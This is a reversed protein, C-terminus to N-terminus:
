PMPQIDEAEDLYKSKLRALQEDIEKPTKVKRTPDVVTIDSTIELKPPIIEDWPIQLNDDGAAKGMNRAAVTMAMENDKEIAKQYARKHMEIEQYRILDRRARPMNGIVLKISSLDRIAEIYSLDPNSLQIFSIMQDDTRDPHSYYYVFGIYRRRRIDIVKDSIKEVKRNDFVSFEANALDPMKALRQAHDTELKEKILDHVVLLEDEEISTIFRAVTEKDM